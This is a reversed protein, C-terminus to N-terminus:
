VSRMNITNELSLCRDDNCERRVRSLVFVHLMRALEVKFFVHLRIVLSSELWTKVKWRPSFEGSRWLTLIVDESNMVM